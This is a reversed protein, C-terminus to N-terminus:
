RIFTMRRTSTFGPGPRDTAVATLRYFYTGSSGTANWTVAHSGPDREGNELEAVKQGLLDIIELRVHSRSTLTYTITTSPNFPNPFNQELSFSAPVRQEADVGTVYQLTVVNTDSFLTGHAILTYQTTQAPSVLMSDTRNVPANNLTVQSGATTEWYLKASIGPGVTGRNSVFYRTFGAPSNIIANRVTQAIITYGGTLPHVGDAFYLDQHNLLPTYNDILLENVARRVSDILPEIQNHVVSGSILYSDIYVPPPLCLFMQPNRGNTRFSSVLDMYDSFFESKFAWNQPKSDNTGFEIIVINPILNKASVFATESWYPFDGHKLVTTGSVGYNKVNYHSGLLGALQGPYANSASVGEGLTISNGICAIRIQPVQASAGGTVSLSVAAALIMRVTYKM